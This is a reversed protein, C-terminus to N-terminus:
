FSSQTVISGLAALALYHEAPVPSGSGCRGVRSNAGADEAIKVAVWRAGLQGSCVGRCIRPYTARKLLSSVEDELYIAGRRAAWLPAASVFVRSTTRSSPISVLYFPNHSFRRGSTSMVLM